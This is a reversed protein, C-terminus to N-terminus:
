KSLDVAVAPGPASVNGHSDVATVQYVYQRGAAVTADRYAPAALLSANLRIESGVMGGDRRLVNYGAVDDEPSPEWSLDVALTAGASLQGMAIAQLGRPASPPFVDRYTVEVPASGEGEIRVAHGDLTVQRVRQAVYRYTTGPSTSTDLLGGPDHAVSATDPQGASVADPPSAPASATGSEQGSLHIEEMGSSNGARSLVNGFGRARPYAMPKAPVQAPAPEAPLIPGASVSRRVLEMRGDTYSAAVPKWTIEVGGPRAKAEVKGVAHPPTGAAAWAPQSYGASRGHPNLLQLRYALLRTPGSALEAPLDVALMAPGPIVQRRAVEVCGTSARLPMSGVSSGSTAAAAVEAAHDRCLVAIIPGTIGTKETTLGSTTWDAEVRQAIRTLRLDRVV